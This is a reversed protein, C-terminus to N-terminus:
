SAGKYNTLFQKGLPKPTYVSLCVESRSGGLLFCFLAKLTEEPPETVVACRILQGWWRSLTGLPGPPRRAWHQLCPEPLAALSLEPAGAIQVGSLLADVRACTHGHLIQPMNIGWNRMAERVNLNWLVEQKRLKATVPRLRHARLAKHDHGPSVSSGLPWTHAWSAPQFWSPTPVGTAWQLPASTRVADPTTVARRSLPVRGPQLCPPRPASRPVSLPQRPPLAPHVPTVALFCCTHSDQTEVDTVAPYLPSTSVMTVLHFLFPGVARSPESAGGSRTILDCSLCPGRPHQTLPLHRSGLICPSAPQPGLRQHPRDGPVIRTSGRRRITGSPSPQIASM